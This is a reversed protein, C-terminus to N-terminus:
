EGIHPNIIRAIVDEATMQERAGEIAGVNRQQTAGILQDVKMGLAALLKEAESPEKKVPESKPRDVVPTPVTKDETQEPEVPAIQQAPEPDAAAESVQMAEIEDKSYGARILELIETYTM